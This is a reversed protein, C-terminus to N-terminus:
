YTNNNNSTKNIDELEFNLHKNIQKINLSIYKDEKNKELNFFVKSFKFWFDQYM